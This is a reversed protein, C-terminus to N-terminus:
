FTGFLRRIVRSPYIRVTADVNKDKYASHMKNAEFQSSFEELALKTHHKSITHLEIIDFNNGMTWSGDELAEGMQSIHKEGALSKLWETIARHYSLVVYHLLADLQGVLIPVEDIIQNKLVIYEQADKYSHNSIKGATASKLKTKEKNIYSIYAARYTSHKNVKNKVSHCHELSLDLAKVITEKVEQVVLMTKGRQDKLKETYSSYISRIFHEDTENDGYEMFKEWSEAFQIHEDMFSILPNLSYVIEKKLAQVKIYRSKFEKVISAYERRPTTSFVTGTETALSKTDNDDINGDASSPPTLNNIGDLLKEVHAKADCLHQIIEFSVDDCSTDLLKDILLTYKSLRQIPKILLSEFDWCNSQSKALFACEDLWKSVKPGSFDTCRTLEQMQTRHNKFYSTYVIKFRNLYNDFTEGIDFREIRSNGIQEKLSDGEVFDCQTHKKIGKMLDRVLLKSLDIVTDINGFIIAEESQSLINKYKRSNHLLSRYVSNILLLDNQYKVESQILEELARRYKSEPYSTSIGKYKPSDCHVDDLGSAFNENKIPSDVKKNTLSDMRPPLVLDDVNRKRNNKVREQIKGIAESGKEGATSYWLSGAYPNSIQYFEVPNRKPFEFNQNLNNKNVEEHDTDNSSLITSYWSSADSEPSSPYNLNETM